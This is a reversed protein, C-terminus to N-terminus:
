CCAIRQPLVELIRPKVEFIGGGGFVEFETHAQLVQRTMESLVRATHHDTLTLQVADHREFARGHVTAGNDLPVLFVTSIEADNLYVQEAEAHHGHQLVADFQYRLVIALGYVEGLQRLILIDIFDQLLSVGYTHKLHLAARLHRRQWPITRCAEIIEDYLDGDNPGAWDDPLHHVGIHPPTLLFLGHRIRM